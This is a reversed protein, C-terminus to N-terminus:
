AQAAKARGHDPTVHNHTKSGRTNPCKLGLRKAICQSNTMSGSRKRAFGERRGAHSKLGYRCQDGVVRIVGQERLLDIM